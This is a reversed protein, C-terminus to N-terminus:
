ADARAAFAPDAFLAVQALLESRLGNKIAGEWTQDVLQKSIQVAPNNRQAIEHCLALAAEDLAEPEVIEDVLGWALAQQAEIRRGTMLMLKARSPGALITALVAGGTDTSIGYLVEPLSLKSDTSAIRIDAAMALELGGGIVHGKLAAVVPKASGLLALRHDQAARIYEYNNAYRANDIGSEGSDIVSMDRGSCFSRGEGRLLIVDIAPDASADALAVPLEDLTPDDLANHRDPRNLSIVRVRQSTEVLIAM